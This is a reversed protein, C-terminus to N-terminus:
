RYSVRPVGEAVCNLLTHYTVEKVQTVHTFHVNYFLSFMMNILVVFFSMRQINVVIEEKVQTVHTFHVNYFLSFMMNILVV